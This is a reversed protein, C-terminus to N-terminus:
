VDSQITNYYIVKKKPMRKKFSYKAYRNADQLRNASKDLKQSFPIFIPGRNNGAHAKIQSKPNLGLYKKVIVVQTAEKCAFFTELVVKDPDPAPAPTPAPELVASGPQKRKKSIARELFQASQQPYLILQSGM